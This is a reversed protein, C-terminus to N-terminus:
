VLLLITYEQIHSYIEPLNILLSLTIRILFGVSNKFHSKVLQHKLNQSPFHVLISLDTEIHLMVFPFKGM